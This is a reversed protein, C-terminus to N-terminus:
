DQSLVYDEFEKLLRLHYTRVYYSLSSTWSYIGDTMGCHQIPLTKGTLVDKAFSATVYTIKGKDLYQAIKELGNYSNECFSEKMSAFGLGPGFEDYHILSIM